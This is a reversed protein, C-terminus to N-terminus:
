GGRTAALGPFSIRTIVSQPLPGAQERPATRIAAHRAVTDCEPRAIVPRADPTFGTRLAVARSAVNERHPRVELRELGLVDFALRTVLVLARGAVGRGRAGAAVWYGVDTAKRDWDIVV